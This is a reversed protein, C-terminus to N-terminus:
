VYGSGRRDGHRSLIGVPWVPPSSDQVVSEETFLSLWMCWDAPPIPPHERSGEVAERRCRLSLIVSAM